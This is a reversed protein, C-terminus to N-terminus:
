ALFFLSERLLQTAQRAVIRKRFRLSPEANGVNWCRNGCRMVRQRLEGMAPSAFAASLGGHERVSIDGAHDYCPMLNGFPDISAFFFGAYCEHHVPGGFYTPIHRLFEKSNTIMGNRRAFESVQELGETIESIAERPVRYPALESAPKFRHQLNEHLPTFRIARVGIDRALRATALMDRYNMGTITFTLAVHVHPANRAFYRASTAVRDFCRLRRIRDHVERRHSDLSMAVLLRSSRALRRCRQETMLSGNTHVFPVIGTADIHQILAETDRRLFPEGGGISIIMTGLDAADNVISFLEDTTLMGGRDPYNSPYGCMGCRANCELITELYLLPLTDPAAGRSRARKVNVYSRLMAPLNRLVGRRPRPTPAPAGRRPAPLDPDDVAPEPVARLVPLRLVKSDPRSM